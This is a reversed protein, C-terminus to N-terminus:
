IPECYACFDNTLYKKKRDFFLYLLKIIIHIDNNVGELVRHRLLYYKKNEKFAVFCGNIVFQETVEIFFLYKIQSKIHM